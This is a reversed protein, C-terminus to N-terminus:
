IFKDITLSKKFGPPRFDELRLNSSSRIENLVSEGKESQIINLTSGLVDAALGIQVLQGQEEGGEYILQGIKSLSVIKELIVKAFIRGLFEAAKPADNVMDELGALVSGFGKILQSESIMGQGPKTLNILLKTLLDREMDKREFSDNVWASIMSPYFSPANFEKICLAVEHEDRASYFEKITALFKEQLEEEPWVKDSSANLTNIPPGGANRVERNGSTINQVQPHSQDFIPAPIKDSMYRPMLDERQGYAAREPISSINNQGLGIRRADGSNPMEALPISPASAQGRFAMGRALGGQPGLTISEEGLTRQPMPFSMTRNESSHREDTRADQTGYGRQQQPVGRFGGIQPSPPSLMNSSRPGFDMPQGRRASNGMSPVRALRSAQAHREQAADRHVEDIRKPGEVKRRQQWKNKRLDISDKLMFRVRSSLKMNNSLQAMIDFYADMFEKAKPHDIMEGITSMLKCLAEINEEDPTHYQGLLKNICEHMIRETLMRKKYLEGILRINGLMRRRVQLRKEEREEATQKVEGEEEAKNAEEEEREGREFEEQCKNLLLRKFTIKENDVSLDPLDAALHFCFNAYMECFTPEMLAKDFIQSIVGSLTIVNDINVQKVQEFLKEFNQPTLKNLIGKLQRQKAQEEDTVKGIEYKKEAKHMIQMPTQPPPMLGKQFGTARQWRDSDSNNRQLPGGQPGFQLPGTLIPGAYHVPPQARLNRVVGYNVGQGPRLGAINNMHGVDTRIDGRGSMVPGPFKNWKDEEVLGSARRDPRSGVVPRDTNRGPSPYSERSINVSSVVLTDVIDPAIEFGEPLDTCQEVFKLLFDRSYRKTTLGDDDQNENKLTDLQPTSIEAADEWDDPEVKVHSPKECPVANEQSMDTSKQKESVRSSSESGQASTVTEKKGEPGKYAMYLDSSTGAAEAKKYLDKKKKKGRPAVSKSVNVDSLVKGNVSSPSPSVLGSGNSVIDEDENGSGLVEEPPYSVLVPASKQDVLDYKAVTTEMTNISHPVSLSADSTFTTDNQMSLGTVPVSEDLKDPTHGSLVGTTSTLEHNSIEEMKGSIKPSELSLSRLSTELSHTSSELSGSLISEGQEKRGITDPKSQISDVGKVGVSKFIEATRGEGAGENTSNSAESSAAAIISSSEEDNESVLNNRSSISKVEVAEPEPFQSPLSSPSTQPRGVQDQQDNGPKIHKDKISDPVVAASRAEATTTSASASGDMPDSASVSTHPVVRDVVVPSSSAVTAYSTGLGPKPMPLTSLPSPEIEKGPFISGEGPLRSPKLSEAKGGSPSGTPPLVEKEGHSGVPSKVTVQKYPRPPQSTPPVQTTNIPVSSVAPFCASAPNYPSPYFNMQINPPFSSIPQSQSQVNPHLRPAPSSELRLEEHTEPHTIKVTKRTGSYKVAPQQQFQPPLNMGMSGLQSPHQAGMQPPFTLSQGQHMMGQPQMHHPQLGPVYMPHQVPLNGIPVSMPMPMPMPPGPMAQPQIQLNQGGFQVPVQPQHYPLQMPMGQIPHRSPSQSQTVPPAASVQADRKSRSVLQAEVANPQDPIGVDKKPFQQNPISQVPKAAAARLSEHRVQDKKQEDLNPPASSTRAPIQVGNMLGPSISGFQLPFSKSADGPTTPTKSESSVNSSPARPVARSITQSPTDAPKVNSSTNVVPTVSVRNTQQQQHAGNQLSVPAPSVSSDVNPSRASPQGVPPASSNNYKKFSRNSLNASGSPAGGGGGGVKNSAGGSFQRPQNFSGSRGTKKYQASESREARSQNHSM